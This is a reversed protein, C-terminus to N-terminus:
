YGIRRQPHEKEWTSQCGKCRVAGPKHVLRIAEIPEGCDQCASSVKGTKRAAALRAEEREVGQQVNLTTALAAEVFQNYLASAQDAMDGPIATPFQAVPRNLNKFM